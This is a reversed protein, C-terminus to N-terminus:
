TDPVERVAFVDRETSDCRFAKVTGDDMLVRVSIRWLGDGVLAPDGVLTVERVQAGGTGARSRAAAESAAKMDDVTLVRSAPEVALGRTKFIAGYGLIQRKRRCSTLPLPSQAPM